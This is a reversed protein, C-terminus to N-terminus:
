ELEFLCDFRYLSIGTTVFRATRSDQDSESEGSAHVKRDVGHRKKSAVSAMTESFDLRSAPNPLIGAPYPM